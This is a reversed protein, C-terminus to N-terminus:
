GSISPTGRRGSRTSAATEFADRLTELSLDSANIEILNVAGINEPLQFEGYEARIAQYEANSVSLLERTELAEFRLIRSRPACSSRPARAFASPRRLFKSREYNQTM